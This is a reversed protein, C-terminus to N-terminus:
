LTQLFGALKYTAVCDTNCYTILEQKLREREIPNSEQRYMDYYGMAELGSGISNYNVSDKLLIGSVVKLSFNNGFAPTYYHFNLFVDFLDVLKAKLKQLGPALEAYKKELWDIIALEMTKDYVLITNYNESLQLLQSAFTKREDQEHATFFDTCQVGDYFSVLFPIQEFPRTGPLQPIAPNWIEMDMAAIPQNLKALFAAIENTNVLSQGSLFAKKLDVLLPKELLSDPLDELQTIGSNYWEFATNKNVQPLNFISTGSNMNKWCTGFFDCQYPKFCQRGVPVNPIAGRELVALAANIRHEFYATHALARQKVSRRKFLKRPEPENELVYDPNLTVLFFDDLLPLAQSIVFYQLCADKIYTESVKISSKIEYATYRGNEFCLIDAMVLVNHQLFTAEYIVPTQEAILRNTLELAEQYNKTLAAVDTGGAFLQRAYFGVDHGRKFTLLREASPKDRLYPHNKYLFFAKDCQEFKIFSTKSLAYSNPTM